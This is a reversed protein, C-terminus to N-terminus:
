KTSEVEFRFTHHERSFSHHINRRFHITFTGDELSPLRFNGQGDSVSIGQARASPRPFDSGKIKSSATQHEGPFMDRLMQNVRAEIATAKKKWRADNIRLDWELVGRWQYMYLELHLETRNTLGRFLNVFDRMYIAATPMSTVDHCYWSIISQEDGFVEYFGVTLRLHRLRSCQTLFRSFQLRTSTSSMGPGKNRHGGIADLQLLRNRDPQGLWDLVHLHDALFTTPLLAQGPLSTADTVLFKNNEAFFTEAEYGIQHNIGRLITFAKVASACSRSLSGTLCTRFRDGHCVLWVTGSGHESILTKGYIENRIEGPLDAFSKQTADIRSSRYPSGESNM